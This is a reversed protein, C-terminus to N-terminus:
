PNLDLYCSSQDIKVVKSALEMKPPLLVLHSSRLTLGGFANKAQRFRHLESYSLIGNFESM